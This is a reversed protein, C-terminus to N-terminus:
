RSGLGLGASSARQCGNKARMRSVTIGLVARSIAVQRDRPMSIMKARIAQRLGSPRSRESLWFFGPKL